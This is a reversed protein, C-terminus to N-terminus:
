RTRHAKGQGPRAGVSCRRGGADPPAVPEAPRSSSPVRPALGSSDSGAAMSAAMLISQQIHIHGARTLEPAAGNLIYHVGNDLQQVKTAGNVTFSYSIVDEVGMGAPPPNRDHPDAHPASSYGDNFSTKPTFRSRLDTVPM